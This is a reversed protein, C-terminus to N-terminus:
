RSYEEKVAMRDLFEKGVSGTLPEEWMSEEQAVGVRHQFQTVTEMAWMSGSPHLLQLQVNHVEIAWCRASCEACLLHELFVNSHIFLHSLSLTFLCCIHDFENENSLKTRDYM